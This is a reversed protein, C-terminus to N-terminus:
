KAKEEPPPPAEAPYLVISGRRVGSDRSFVTTLLRHTREDFANGEKPAPVVLTIEQAGGTSARPGDEEMVRRGLSHVRFPGVFKYNTKDKALPAKGKPEKDPSPPEESEQPLIFAIKQGVRMDEALAVNDLSLHLLVEDKDWPRAPATIDSWLLMDGKKMGRQVRRGYVVARNGYRIGVKELSASLSRPLTVNQLYEPKIEEGAKLDKLLGVYFVPEIDSSRGMYNLGAALVGLGLPILLKWWGQM